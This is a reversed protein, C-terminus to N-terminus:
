FNVIIFSVRRNLKRTEETSNSAIPQTSGYGKVRIRDPAVGKEVLYDRVVGAREQSLSLNLQFAGQNDTHGVVEITMGSHTKMFDALYDLEVQISDLLQASAKEFLVQHLQITAGQKMPVLGWDYEIAAPSHTDLVLTTDLPWFNEASIVVNYTMAPAIKVTYAGAHEDTTVKYAINEDTHSKFSVSAGIPLNTHKDYVKGYVSIERPISVSGEEAEKSKEQEAHEQGELAIQYLNGKTKSDLVSLIYAYKKDPALLFARDSGQANVELHLKQPPSWNTWTDDLRKAMYIGMSGGHRNSAFFLTSDDSALSPNIDQFSSNICLGLNVPESWTGDEKAFSIYLDEPGYAISSQMSLIMVKGNKSLCGSLHSSKNQFYDIQLPEPKHWTTGEKKAMGIVSKNGYSGMLYLHQGGEAFGIVANQALDNISDGLNNPLSWQGDKDMTMYWIDGKNALGSLNAPHRRVTFYLTKGDPSLVPHQIDFPFDPTILQRDTSYISQSRAYFSISLM